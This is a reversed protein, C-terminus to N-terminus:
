PVPRRGISHYEFGVRRIRDPQWLDRGDFIVPPRMITRLRELNLFKFENWKTVLALADGGTAAQYPSDCYVVEVPLLRRANPMAVPNYARVRAGLDLLRRILEISKAERMDDPNPKFALGLIAVMPAGVTALTKAIKGVSLAVRERNIKVVSHMLRFTM